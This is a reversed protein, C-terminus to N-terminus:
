QTCPDIEFHLYHCDVSLFDLELSKIGNGLGVHFKLPTDSYIGDSPMKVGEVRISIVNSVLVYQKLTVRFIILGEDYETSIFSNKIIDGNVDTAQYLHLGDDKFGPLNVEIFDDENVTQDFAFTFNLGGTGSAKLDPDMIVSSTTPTPLDYVDPYAVTSNMLGATSVSSYIEVNINFPPSLLQTESM